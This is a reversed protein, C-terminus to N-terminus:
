DDWKHSFYAALFGSFLIIGLVTIFVHMNGLM